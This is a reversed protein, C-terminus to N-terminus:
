SRHPSQFSFSGAFLRLEGSPEPSTKVRISGDEIQEILEQLFRLHERYSRKLYDGPQGSDPLPMVDILSYFDEAMGLSINEDLYRGIRRKWPVLLRDALALPPTETRFVGDAARDHYRKEVRQLLQTLKECHLRLEAAVERSRRSTPGRRRRRVQLKRRIDPWRGWLLALFAAALMLSVQIERDFEGYVALAGLTLGAALSAGLTQRNDM